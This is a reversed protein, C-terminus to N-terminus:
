GRALLPRNTKPTKSGDPRTLDVGGPLDPMGDAALEEATLIAIVGPLARAAGADISRFAARAHPSLLVAHTM